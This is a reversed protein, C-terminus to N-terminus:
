YIIPLIQQQQASVEFQALVKQHANTWQKGLLVKVQRATELGAQINGKAQQLHAPIFAFGPRLDRWQGKILKFHQEALDINRLRLHAVVALCRAHNNLYSFESTQIKKILEEVRNAAEVFHGKALSVMVMDVEATLEGSKDGIKKYNETILRLEAEAYQIKGLAISTTAIQHKAMLAYGQMDFRIFIEQAKQYHIVAKEAQSTSLFVNALNYLAKGEGPAYKAQGYQQHARNLFSVAEFLEGKAQYSSGINMLENAMLLPDDVAFSNTQLAISIQLSGELKGQAYLLNSRLHELFYDESPMRKGLKLKEIMEEALSLNGQRYYVEALYASAWFFDTQRGLALELYIKASKIDGSLLDHVGIAYDRNARSDDSFTDDLSLVVKEGPILDSVLYGLLMDTADLVDPQVFESIASRYENAYIQYSLVANNNEETGYRLVILHSCGIQGCILDFYQSDEPLSGQEDYLGAVANILTAVPLTQISEYRALQESAMSMIGYKLWENIPNNNDSMVPMVAVRLPFTQQVGAPKTLLNAYFFVIAVVAIVLVPISFLIKKNKTLEKVQILQKTRRDVKPQDPLQEKRTVQVIFRFGKGRITKILAQDKGTDGLLQRVDSVLKSLSWDTVVQDPWLNELLFQKDVVEPYKECLLSLLNITKEDDSILEGNNYLKRNEKDVLYNDFQYHM